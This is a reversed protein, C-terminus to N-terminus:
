RQERDPSLQQVYKLFNEVFVDTTAPYVLTIGAAKMATRTRNSEPFETETLMGDKDIDYRSFITKAYEPTAFGAAGVREGREGFRSAPTIVPGKPGTLEQWAKRQEESLLSLVQEERKATFGNAKDRLRKIMEENTENAPREAMAKRTIERSEEVLEENKKRISAVQEETLKLQKAIDDRYIANMGLQQLELQKLRVKQEATLISRTKEDILKLMESLATSSTTENIKTRQEPSLKLDDQIATNRLLSAIRSPGSGFPTSNGFGGFGGNRPGANAPAGANAADGRGPSGGLASIRTDPLASRLDTLRETSLRPSNFTLWTLKKLQKLHELGAATVKPSSITVSTLRECAALSKLEEDTCEAGLTLGVIRYEADVQARGGLKTIAALVDREAKPPPTFEQAVASSLGFLMFGTICLFRLM